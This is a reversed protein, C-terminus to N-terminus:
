RKDTGWVHDIWKVLMYGLLIAIMLGGVIQQITNKALTFLIIMSLTFAIFSPICVKLLLKAFEIAEKV